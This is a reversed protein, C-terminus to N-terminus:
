AYEEVDVPRGDHEVRPLCSPLGHEQSDYDYDQAERLAKVAAGLSAHRSDIGRVRNSIDISTVTYPWVSSLAETLLTRIAEARSQGTESAYTDVQGVLDGLPVHVYGGISPRGPRRDEEEPIEGFYKKVADDEHNRLLWDRAESDTIYEHQSTENQWNTWRQLVWRGQSTRIVATGRGVGGSGNGNYDSDTWREAKDLDFHGVLRRGTVYDDEDPYSYVNVRDM